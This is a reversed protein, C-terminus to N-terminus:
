RLTRWSPSQFTERKKGGRGGRGGDKERERMVDLIYKFKRFVSFYLIMYRRTLIYTTQNNVIQRGGGQSKWWPLSPTQHLCMFAYYTNLLYKHILSHHVALFLSASSASTFTPLVRLSLYKTFSEFLFPFRISDEPAQIFVYLSM